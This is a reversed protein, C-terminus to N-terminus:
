LSFHKVIEDHINEKKASFGGCNVQFWFDGEVKIVDYIKGQKGTTEYSYQPIRKLEEGKKERYVFGGKSFREEALRMM